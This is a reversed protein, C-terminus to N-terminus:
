GLILNRIYVTLMLIGNLSRTPQRGASLHDQSILCVYSRQQRLFIHHNVQPPEDTMQVRNAGNLVEESYYLM